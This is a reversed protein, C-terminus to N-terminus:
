PNSRLAKNPIILHLETGEGPQSHISLQGGIKQARESMILLGVHELSKDRIMEKLFGKGDDIVKIINNNKDTYIQLSVKTANAHKRINSLAEQIILVIELKEKDSLDVNSADVMATVEISTQQKFREILEELHHSFSELRLPTRFNLLLERVNDYSEKIGDKIYALNESAEAKNNAQFAKELMQVQLNLFNLTQAISDHLGQALQNREELVAIKSTRELLRVGGIAIGLQNSLSEILNKKAVSLEQSEYSFFIIIGIKERDYHIPFINMAKYTGVACPPENQLLQQITMEESASETLAFQGCYCEDFGECTLSNSLDTSLNLEAILQMKQDNYDHLRIAGADANLIPMVQALFGQCITKIDHQDHLFSTIRYLSELESNRMQLDRTKEQISEELGRHVKDLRRAMKNYGISLLGFENDDRNFSERYSFDGQEAHLFAYNLRQLPQIILRFLLYLMVLSGAVVLSILFYQYFHLRKLTKANSREVMQVLIDINQALYNAKEYNFSGKESAVLEPLIQENWRHSLLAAQEIIEKDKPLMLPRKPDGNVLRNLVHSFEKTVDLAQTKDELQNLIVLQYTRMRLSGADNIAAGAGELQWLLSLTFFISLLASFWWMLTVVFLKTSLKKRLPLGSFPTKEM